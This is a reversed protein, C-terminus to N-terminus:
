NFKQKICEKCYDYVLFQISAEPVAKVLNIGLAPYFGKFGHTNYIYKICQRLTVFQKKTNDLGNIQMQRKITDGPYMLTQAIIGAIGGSLIINNTNNKLKEYISFQLGVYLPYTSASISLGKYLSLVGEQKIINMTCKTINNYNKTMKNDLSMRTRIVDLPYTLLIQNLGAAIGSVLLQKYTLPKNNTKFIKKYTKNLPFKLVYAPMIRNINALNSRYFGKFGENQYIFKISSFLTNYNKSSYYLQTQKLLKIRELPAVTTKTCIASILSSISYAFYDWM